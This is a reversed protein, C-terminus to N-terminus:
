SDWRRSYSKPDWTEELMHPSVDKDGDFVLAACRREKRDLDALIYRIFRARSNGYDERDEEFDELEDRIDEVV